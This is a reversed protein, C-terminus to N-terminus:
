LYEEALELDREANQIAGEKLQERLNTSAKQEIKQKIYYRVAKNIFNNRDRLTETPSEDDQIASDIMRITEEPLSINLERYM